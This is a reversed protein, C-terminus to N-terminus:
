GHRSGVPNRGGVAEEEFRDLITFGLSAVHINPQWIVNISPGLFSPDREGTLSEEEARSAASETWASMCPPAKV